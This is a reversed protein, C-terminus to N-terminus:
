HDTVSTCSNPETCLDAASAYSVVWLCPWMNRIYMQHKATDTCCATKRNQCQCLRKVIKQCVAKTLLHMKPLSPKALMDARKCCTLEMCQGCFSCHQIMAVGTASTHRSLLWIHMKQQHTRCLCIANNMKTEHYYRTM